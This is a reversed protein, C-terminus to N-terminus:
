SERRKIDAGKEWSFVAKNPAQTDQFKIKQYFPVDDTGRARWDISGDKTKPWNARNALNKGNFTGRVKIRDGKKSSEYLNRWLKSPNNDSVPFGALNKASRINDLLRKAERRLVEENKMNANIFKQGGSSDRIIDKIQKISYKKIRTPNVEDAIGVRINTQSVSQYTWKKGQQTTRNKIKKAFEENSLNINEDNLRLNAFESDLLAKPFRKKYADMIFDQAKIINDETATLGKAKAHEGGGWIGSQIRYIGGRDKILYINGVESKPIKSRFEKAEKATFRGVDTRTDHKKRRKILADKDKLYETSDKKRSSGQYVIKGEHPHGKKTIVLYKVGQHMVFKQGSYGQRGPGPQVLQGKQYEPRTSWPGKRYYEQERDSLEDWEPPITGGIPPDLSSLRNRFALRREYRTSDQSWEKLDELQQIISM